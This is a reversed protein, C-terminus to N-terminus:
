RRYRDPITYLAAPLIKKMPPAHSLQNKGSRLDPRRSCPNFGLRGRKAVVPQRREAIEGNECEDDNTEGQRKDTVKALRATCLNKEAELFSRRFFCGTLWFGSGRAFSNGRTKDFHM